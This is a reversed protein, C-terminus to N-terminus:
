SVAIRPQEIALSIKNLIERSNASLAPRELLGTVAQSALQRRGVEVRATSEFLTCLRAAIAGNRADIDAILDAM